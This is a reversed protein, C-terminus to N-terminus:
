ENDEPDDAPDEPDEDDPPTTDEPPNVPPTPPQPIYPLPTPVYAPPVPDPTIVVSPSYGHWPNGPSPDTPDWGRLHYPANGLSRVGPRGLPGPNPSSYFEVLTGAPVNHFIWRADAVTLRICGASASTGLRDFEWWQLSAHNGRETYPVSHFLIHGVIQTAYMGHVGGFLSLWRSRFAPMAFTRGNYVATRPGTSAIMARVPVTHNGDADRGFITVVNAQTNVRIFFPSGSARAAGAATNGTTDIEISEELDDIYYEEYYDEIMLFYSLAYASDIRGSTVITAHTPANRYHAFMFGTLSLMTLVIIALLVLIKKRTIKRFM